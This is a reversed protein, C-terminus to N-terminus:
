TCGNGFYVPENLLKFFCPKRHLLQCFVLSQLRPKHLLKASLHLKHPEAASHRHLLFARTHAARREQKVSVSIFFAATISQPKKRGRGPKFWRGM